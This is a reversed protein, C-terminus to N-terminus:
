KRGSLTNAVASIFPLTIYKGAWATYASFLSAGFLCLSFLWFLGGFFPFFSFLLYVPFCFFFLALITVGQWAHFLVFQSDKRVTLVFFSMFPVYALAAFTREDDNIDNENPLNTDQPMQTSIGLAGLPDSINQISKLRNMTITKKEIKIEKTTPNVKGDKTEKSSFIELNEEPYFENLLKRGAILKKEDGQEKWEKMKQLAQQKTMHTKKYFRSDVSDIEQFVSDKIEELNEEQEKREPRKGTLIFQLKEGLTMKQKNKM